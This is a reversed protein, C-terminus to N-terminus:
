KLRRQDTSSRSAAASDVSATLDYETAGTIRVRHIAGQKLNKDVITVGDIEYAQSYIRGLVGGSRKEDILMDFTKGVMHLNNEYSINQQALMIRDFRERKARDPIQHLAYAPTREERSYVFAGLNNFKYEKIFDLLEGFESKKETPFGAIVSTRLAMDPYNNKIYWLLNEIQKRTVHRNMAKLIRDNIHQIPLDIYSCIKPEGAIYDILERTTFRPHAYMIRLWPINDAAKVIKKLLSIINKQKKGQIFDKGWATTDQATITLEKVTNKDNINKVETLIEKETKSILSGRISPIACYSCNNRCGEAIKLDAIHPLTLPIRDNDYFCIVPSFADVGKLHRHLEKAYRKVLCGWVIVKKIQGNKKLELVDRITEISEEKASDIFGCTNIIVADAKEPTSIAYGKRRLRMLMKESDVTNRSCGLTVIGIKKM